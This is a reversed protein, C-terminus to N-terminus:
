GVKFFKEPVNQTKQDSSLAPRRDQGSLFRCSNDSHLALISFYTQLFYNKLCIYTIGTSLIYDLINEVKKENKQQADPRQTKFIKLLRM